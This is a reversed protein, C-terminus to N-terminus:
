HTQPTTEVAATVDQTVRSVNDMLGPPDKFVNRNIRQLIRSETRGGSEWRVLYTDNIHGNGHPKGDLFRGPAGFQRGIAELDPTMRGSLVLGRGARDM